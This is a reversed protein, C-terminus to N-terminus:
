FSLLVAELGGTARRLEALASEIEFKRLFLRDTQVPQKEQATSQSAAMRAPSASRRKFSLFGDGATHDEPSATHIVLGPGFPTM